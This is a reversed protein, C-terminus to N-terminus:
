AMQGTKMAILKSAEDASELMKIVADPGSMLAKLIEALEDESTKLANQLAKLIAEFETLDANADGSGKNVAISHGTIGLGGLTMVATGTGVVIKAQTGSALQLSSIERAAGAGGGGAGWNATGSYGGGGGGAVILVQATMDAPVTWTFGESATNTYAQVLYTAGGEVVEKEWGFATATRGSRDIPGGVWAATLVVDDYVKMAAVTASPLAATADGVLWGSFERNDPDTPDTVAFCAGNTATLTGLSTGDDNKLTATWSFDVTGQGYYSFDTASGAERACDRMLAEHEASPVGSLLSKAPMEGYYHQCWTLLELYKGESSFHRHDGFCPDDAFTRVPLRYRYLQAAYGSAVVALNYKAAVGDVAARISDYM